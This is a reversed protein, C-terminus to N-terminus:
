CCEDVLPIRAVRAASRTLAGTMTKVKVMRVRKDKGPCVEQILGKPWKNRPGNPDVIYVLDGVQLPRQDKNWKKRPLLDPLVEKVWRNWFMDALRQSIRWQKRLYLDSDDFKGIQPSDLSTGLLFHKPTLTEASGPEVSVHTLPRSNVINEIETLLTSLTEDRPAREKLVVRLSTKVSRILREWAGGWHPSAPPIFTWKTGHNLAENKMEDEDLEQISRKLEAHAGRLNTGNDSFLQQPWGRRAAMRRLAMIFSDTTLSSVIEIHIARVTLCTFLVGYRQEHRRGVTVELPGFLDVGCFTFPRHHHAMRAYPLDGIRPIEPKCTRLRCLMCKKVVNKVTPRLRIVWYKQKIENVVTEQNGHAANVHYHRVILRTTYNQGDLIAPRKMDPLVDAAADIRGGARLVGHVDLYPSLTLLKSTTPIQKSNRLLKIEESFSQSQSYRLLLLEAREMIDDNLNHTFNRPGFKRNVAELGKDIFTLVRTTARLLRLWSSFKTPEPVPLNNNEMDVVNVVELNSDKNLSEIVDLPWQDCKNQLFTPGHLWENQLVSCDYIERTAIDAVNLKTPVYRWENIKTLEDIEGLRNAVYTKYCRSDNRIWHLVTTSDSWFIRREATMKHEKTITDALRAALVAAQLELRPVTIPKNGAVRCKSAIFAVRTILKNDTWRWYAVACFAKTSADCFIHMQLNSYCSTKTLLAEENNSTYSTAHTSTTASKDDAVLTASAISQRKLHSQSPLCIENEMENVSATAAPYYRPLRVENITKLLRIWKLWKTYIEENVPDDWSIDLRWTEQLIIKGNITFPSLFGYVDFISMVVQLMERKSPVKQGNILNEPLKKFSIDFRLTDDITHWLLGLTREGDYQQDMKFRVASAGLTEKPVSDLVTESNSIWNRIEFGGQSHIYTIDKILQIATQEDPLSHIYDDMYHQTYIAAAATPMTSEFRQANKNKVFQAIFPSCNAGFILSTMVYTKIPQRVMEPNYDTTTAGKYIFRLANRDQPQVKVRLFMDKIDGMVAIRNERFRLMIGFLSMLLDPGKLLYDNLSLKSTTAAADFVLRLKKKNPNDVGFHPLYWTKQTTKTNVIEEAYDNQLLHQVRKHYRQAYETNRKMKYEVGKLRTMATSLSDPMVCNNDKWPLGVQWRGDILTATQELHHKARQDESNQRPKSASVGMSEMSFYRRVDDHLERFSSGDDDDNKKTFQEDTNLLLTSHQELASTTSAHSVRGHLCWGMPTRTACPERPGGVVVELPLLLQFNDQGILVEPKNLGSSLKDRLKHLYHYNEFKVSTLDQKPLSLENVSRASINYKDGQENSVTLDVLESDCLLETNDWAGRVRMSLKRGRLGARAALRASIMSVTSGDDLLACCNFKGNPGYIVIPVVKLLVSNNSTANIHNVNETPSETETTVPEPQVTVVSNNSRSSPVYHLLRHHPEGCGDADCAAAPCTERNHQSVLCKYCIGVRKVYSWRDKRLARKFKKCDTLKHASARCFRCKQDSEQRKETQLLVTQTHGSYNESYKRKNDWRVTILNASCTSIKIAEESLFDSLIDLRAKKRETILPYSYDAWKSLLVTPLKSLVINVVGVGQLYEERKLERVSAVYNKIKVSFTVIDKHYEQPLPNLKQVESLIRTLIIDPNGYQLELTSMVTDPSTTSILLASVAEKACGRLCKRLRWLNEKASFNCINTSEEYANKFSLWEMPDGFFLPLEKPTSIRSLLNASHSTTATSVVLDRLASALQQVPVNTGDVNPPPFLPGELTGHNNTKQKELEQQSRELWKEIDKGDGQSDSESAQPSYQEDVAALDAALKKDILEMQIRAKEKAAELELKKKQALIASSSSSSKRTKVSKSIQSPEARVNKVAKLSEASTGAEEKDIVKLYGDDNDMKTQAQAKDKVQSENRATSRTNVMKIKSQPPTQFM